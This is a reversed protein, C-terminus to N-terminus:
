SLWWSILGIILWYFPLTFLILGYLVSDYFVTRRTKSKALAALSLYVPFNILWGLGYFLQWYWKPKPLNPDILPKLRETLLKNFDTPYIGEMSNSAAPFDSTTIPKGINITINKGFKSFSDYNNAIPVVMLDIGLQWSQLAMRSTGKKLPLLEKQHVCIGESFILVVGNKQFVKLSRNFTEDNKGMNEKGESIRFIPMMNISSLFKDALPNKFADGRALPHLPRELMCAQVIADFFSNPHTSALLVPKDKPFNELGNIQINRTFLRLIFKAYYRLYKYVMLFRVNFLSLIEGERM